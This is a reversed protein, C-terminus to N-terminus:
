IETMNLKEKRIIKKIYKMNNLTDGGYIQEECTGDCRKKINIYQKM